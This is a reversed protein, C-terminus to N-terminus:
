AIQQQSDLPVLVRVPEKAAGAHLNRLREHVSPTVQYGKPVLLAGSRSRVDEAFTMGIEVDQLAIERVDWNGIAAGRLTAFAELLHPDYTGRSRLTDLAVPISVGQADLIDFDLAINLARSGFAIAGAADEGLGSEQGAPKGRNALIARVTELRPINRLLRETVGPLRSVMQKEEYSLEAGTHLREATEEPLTVCAIQSLMAAVEVPWRQSFGVREALDAVVEKARAARGFSAPSALSLIETLLQISGTLTQELLVRESTILQHQAAAAKLAELLDDRPCPKVLLRFIQGQNVAAMASDLDAHGTLLLRTSDPSIKRVETLFAAGDIGPMRMDSLVVAFQENAAHALAEAPSTVTTLDFHRRLNDRLAELVEPEDDVALVRPRGAEETM